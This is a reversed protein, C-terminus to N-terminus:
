KSPKIARFTLEACGNPNFATLDPRLKHFLNITQQPPLHVLHAAFPTELTLYAKILVFLARKRLQDAVLYALTRFSTYPANNNVIHFFTPLDTRRIVATIPLLFTTLDTPHCLRLAHSLERPRHRICIQFLVNNAAFEKRRSPNRVTNYLENLLRAQNKGYAGLDGASLAADAASEHVKVMLAADVAGATATMTLRRFGRMVLEWQDELNQGENKARLEVVRRNLKELAGYVSRNDREKAPTRTLGDSGGIVLDSFREVVGEEGRGFRSARIASRHAEEDM